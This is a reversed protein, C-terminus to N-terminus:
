VFLRYIFFLGTVMMFIVFGADEATGESGRYREALLPLPFVRIGECVASRESTGHLLGLLRMMWLIYACSSCCTFVVLSGFDIEPYEEKNKGDSGLLYILQPMIQFEFKRPQKCLPCCPVRDLPLMTGGNAWLIKDDNWRSLRLVQTSAREIVKNFHLHVPDDAMRGGLADRIDQDSIEIM